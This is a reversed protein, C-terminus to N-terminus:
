QARAKRKLRFGEVVLAMVVTSFGALFAVPEISKTSILWWLLAGILGMKLFGLGLVWAHSRGTGSGGPLSRSVTLVVAAFSAMALVAGAVISLSAQSGWAWLSALALVIAVAASLLVVRKVLGMTSVGAHAVNM